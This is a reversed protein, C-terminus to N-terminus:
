FYLNYSMITVNCFLYIQATSTLCNRKKIDDELVSMPIAEHNPTSFWQGITGRFSFLGPITLAIYKLKTAGLLIYANLNTKRVESFM